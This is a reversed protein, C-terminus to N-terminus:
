DLPVYVEFLVRQWPNRSEQLHTIRATLLVGRDLFRSVAANDARPVYGVMHGRWEVRVAKPDHPNDPERVLTLADGARMGEWIKRGEHFQFGAVPSTQLLIQGSPSRGYVEVPAALLLAALACILPWVMLRGAEAETLGRTKTPM